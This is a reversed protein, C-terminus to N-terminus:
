LYAKNLTETAKLNPVSDLRKVEWAGYNRLPDSLNTGSDLTGLMVADGVSVGDVYVIANSMREEGQLGLYKENRGSWRCVREVPTGWTPRGRGDVGTRAWHVLTQKKMRSIIGM